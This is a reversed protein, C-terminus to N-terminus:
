GQDGNGIREKLRARRALRERWHAPDDRIEGLFRRALASPERQGQEWSRVTAPAVGLFDAFLAQSLGLSERISRVEVPGLIPLTIDIQYTRITAVREPPVGAEVADCIAHLGEVMERARPSLAGADKRTPKVKSTSRDPRNAKSL